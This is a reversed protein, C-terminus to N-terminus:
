TPPLYPGHLLHEVPIPGDYHRCTCPVFTVDVRRGASNYVDRPVQANCAKTDLDHHAYAHHCSCVPEPPRSPPRRLRGALFGVALLAAGTALTVPDFM